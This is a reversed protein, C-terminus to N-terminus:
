QCFSEHYNDISSKLMKCINVRLLCAYMLKLKNMNM